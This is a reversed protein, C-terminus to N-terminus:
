SIILVKYFGSKGNTFQILKHEAVMVFKQPDCGICFRNLLSFCKPDKSLKLMFETLRKILVPHCPRCTLIARLLKELNEDMLPTSEMKAYSSAISNLFTTVAILFGMYDFAKHVQDLKYLCDCLIQTFPRDDFMPEASIKECFKPSYECLISFIATLRRILIGEEGPYM